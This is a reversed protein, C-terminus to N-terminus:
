GTYVAPGGKYRYFPKFWDKFALNETRMPSPDEDELGDLSSDYLITIDLDEFMSDLLHDEDFSEDFTENMENDVVVVQVVAFM